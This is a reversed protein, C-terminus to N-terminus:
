LAATLGRLKERAIIHTGDTTIALRSRAAADAMHQRIFATPAASNRARMPLHSHTASCSQAAQGPIWGLVNLARWSCATAPLRLASLVRKPQLGCQFLRPRPQMPRTSAMQTTPALQTTSPACGGLLIDPHVSPALTRTTATDTPTNSCCRTASAFPNLASQLALLSVHGMRVQPEVVAASGSGCACRIGPVGM